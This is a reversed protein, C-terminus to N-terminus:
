KTKNAIYEILKDSTKYFRLKEGWHFWGVDCVCGQSELKERIDGRPGPGVLIYNVMKNAGRPAYAIWFIMDPSCMPSIEDRIQVEPHELKFQEVTSDIRQRNSGSKKGFNFAIYIIFGVLVLLLVGSVVDSM